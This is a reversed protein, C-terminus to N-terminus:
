SALGATRMAQEFSDALERPAADLLERAHALLGPAGTARFVFQVLEDHHEVAAATPLTATPDITM